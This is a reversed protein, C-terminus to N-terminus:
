RIGATDTGFREVQPSQERNSGDDVGVHGLGIGGGLIADTAIGHTLPDRKVSFLTLRSEIHLGLAAGLARTSGQRVLLALLNALEHDIRHRAVV